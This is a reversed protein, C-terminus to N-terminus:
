ARGAVYNYCPRQLTEDYVAPLMIIYLYVHTVRIIQDHVVPLINIYLYVLTVSITGDHLVPLM